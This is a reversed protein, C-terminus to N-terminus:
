EHRDRMAVKGQVITGGQDTKASAEVALSRLYDLRRNFIVSFKPPIAYGALRPGGNKLIPSQLVDNAIIVFADHSEFLDPYEQRGQIDKDERVNILRQGNEEFRWLHIPPPFPRRHYKNPNGPLIIEFEGAGQEAYYLQCPHDVPQVVSVMTDVSARNFDCVADAVYEILNPCSRFNMFFLTDAKSPLYEAWSPVAIVNDVFSFQPSFPVPKSVLEIGPLASAISEVSRDVTIVVIKSETHCDKLRKFFQETLRRGDDSTMFDDPGGFAIPLCIIVDSETDLIL